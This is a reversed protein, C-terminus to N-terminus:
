SKAGLEFDIGKRVAKLPSPGAKPGSMALGIAVGIAIGIALWVGGTGLAVGIATGIGAGLAIGLGIQMSPRKMDLSRRERAPSPVRGRRPEHLLERKLGRVVKAVAAIILEGFLEFLGASFELLDALM